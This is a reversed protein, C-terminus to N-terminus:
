WLSKRATCDYSANCVPHCNCYSLRAGKPWSCEFVQLLNCLHVRFKHFVREMNRNWSPQVRYYLECCGNGCIRGSILLLGISILSYGIHHPKKKFLLVLLVAEICIYITVFKVNSRRISKNEYNCTYKWQPRRLVFGWYPQHKAYLFHKRHNEM